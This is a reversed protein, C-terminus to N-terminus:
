ELSSPPEMTCSSGFSSLSSDITTMCTTTTTTSSSATTFTAARSPIMHEKELTLTCDNLLKYLGRERVNDVGCKRRESWVMYYRPYCMYQVMNYKSIACMYSGVLLTLFTVLTLISTLIGYTLYSITTLLTTTLISLTLLYLKLPTINSRRTTTSTTTSPSSPTPLSTSM